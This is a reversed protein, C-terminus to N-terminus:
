KCQKLMSETIPITVDLTETGRTVNVVVTSGVRADLMADVVNYIRTVEHKRGDITISNIIDNVALYGNAGATSTMESIMVEEIIHIKGTETDYSTTSKSATVTIGMLCRYVSEKETGDCYYIVNDAIARVVNSPIAYGINDVESDAMKANVIGIMEGKANFLGGGSNGSNVATDVRIVRIEVPTAEDAGLMNIYESEVNVHGVTASIGSGEPNGVAIATELVSVESSDAIDVPMANSEMLVLSGEVCLVALDYEMSGGIYTAKIAYSALQQGYLYVDIDRSIHNESNCDADYVVHYNTIIYACGKNKDLKYIVGSGASTYTTTQGTPKGFYTKEAEFTCFISVSSLLAKSAALIDNGTQPTITIDYNDGGDVRIYTDGGKGGDSEGEESHSPLEIGLDSLYCSSLSLLSCIVLAIVLLNRLNKKM